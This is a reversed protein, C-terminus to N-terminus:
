RLEDIGGHIVRGGVVMGSASIEAQTLHPCGHCRGEGPLQRQGTVLGSTLVTVTSDPGRLGEGPRCGPQAETGPTVYRLLVSRPIPDVPKAGQAPPWRWLGKGSRQVIRRSRAAMTIEAGGQPPSTRRLREDINRKQGERTDPGCNSDDQRDDENDTFGEKEAPASPNPSRETGVIM